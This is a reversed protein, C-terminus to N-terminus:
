VYLVYLNHYLICVLKVTDRTLETPKCYHRSHVAIYLLTGGPM